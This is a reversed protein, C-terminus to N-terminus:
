IRLIEKLLSFDGARVRGTAVRAGVGLLRLSGLFASSSIPTSDLLQTNLRIRGTNPEKPALPVM